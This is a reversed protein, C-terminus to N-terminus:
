RRLHQRRDTRGHRDRVRVGPQGVPQRQDDGDDPDARRPRQDATFGIPGNTEIVRSTRVGAIGGLDLNNVFDIRGTGAPANFRLTHGDRVFFQSEGTRGDWTLTRGDNGINVTLNGNFAQFGGNGMDEASTAWNVQGAGTGLTRTFTATGGQADVALFGGRLRLNNNLGM